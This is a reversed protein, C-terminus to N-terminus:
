NRALVVLAQQVQPRMLPINYPSNEIRVNLRRREAQLHLAHPLIARRAEIEAAIAVLARWCSSSCRADSILRAQAPRQLSIKGSPGDDSESGTDIKFVGKTGGM